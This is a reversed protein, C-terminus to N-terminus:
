VLGHTSRVKQVQTFPPEPPQTRAPTGKNFSTLICADVSCNSLGPDLFFIGFMCPEPYQITVNGEYILPLPLPPSVVIM